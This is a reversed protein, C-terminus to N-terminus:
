TSEELVKFGIRKATEISEQSAHTPDFAISGDAYVVYRNRSFSGEIMSVQGGAPTAGWTECWKSRRSVETLAYGVTGRRLAADGALSSCQEGEWARSPAGELSAAAALFTDVAEESKLSMIADNAPAKAGCEQCSVGQDVWWDCLGCWWYLGAHRAIERFVNDYGLFEAAQMLRTMAGRQGAEFHNTM